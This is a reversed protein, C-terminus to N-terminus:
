SFVKELLSKLAEQSANLPRGTLDALITNAVEVEENTFHRLRSARYAVTERGAVFDPHIYVYGGGRRETLRAIDGARYLNTLCSTGNAYERLNRPTAPSERLERGTIGHAGRAFVIRSVTELRSEAIGSTELYEEREKSTEVDVSGTGHAYAGSTM